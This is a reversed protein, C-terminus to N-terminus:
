YLQVDWRGLKAYSEAPTEDVGIDGVPGYGLRGDRQAGWCRVSGNTM